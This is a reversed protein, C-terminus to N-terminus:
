NGFTLTAANSTVAKAGAGKVVVRYQDGTNVETQGALVLTANTEGTLVVWRSGGVAKRQWQYEATGAPDISATVSFTAAGSVTTQDAPQVSIVVTVTADPVFADDTDDGAAVATKRMSVVNETWYRTNGDSDTYERYLWWGGGTIGKTKNSAVAAETADVFVLQTGAPYTSLNIWTPRSALADTTGWLAM